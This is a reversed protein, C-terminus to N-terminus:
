YLCAKCEVESDPSRYMLNVISDARKGSLVNQIYLWRPLWASLLPMEHCSHGNSAMAVYFDELYSASVVPLDNWIQWDCLQQYWNRISGNLNWKIKDTWGRDYDRKKMTKSSHILWAIAALRVLPTQSYARKRM